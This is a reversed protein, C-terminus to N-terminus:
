PHLALDGQPAGQVTGPRTGSESELAACIAESLSRLAQQHEPQDDLAFALRELLSSLRVAENEMSAGGGNIETM